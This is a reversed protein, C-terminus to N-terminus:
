RLMSSTLENLHEPTLFFYNQSREGLKRKHLAQGDFWYGQYNEGALLDFVQAAPMGAQDPDALIEILMAPKFRRITQLAGRLFSLEHNNVDCKIFAIKGARDAFISDLTDVAIEIRRCQADGSQQELTADYHCESGWRYRPIVFNACGKHDSLATKFLEVNPLRLKRANHSLFDFIPPNPEFSFVRGSPGVIESLFKTYGGISAGVDMVMDGPRVMSKVLLTDNEAWDVPVHSLLYAYYAKKLRHLSKEPLLAVIARGLMVKPNWESETLMFKRSIADIAKHM